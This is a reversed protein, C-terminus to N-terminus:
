GHNVGWLRPEPEDPIGPVEVPAGPQGAPMPEHLGSKPCLEWGTADVWHEQGPRRTISLRCHQCTALQDDLTVTHLKM